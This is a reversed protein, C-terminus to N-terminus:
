KPEMLRLYHIQFLIFIQNLEANLSDKTAILKKTQEM